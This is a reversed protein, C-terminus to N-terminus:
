MGYTFVMLLTALSLWLYSWRDAIATKRIQEAIM